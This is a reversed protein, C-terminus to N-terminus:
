KIKRISDLGRVKGGENLYIEHTHLSIALTSDAGMNFFSYMYLICKIDGQVQTTVILYTHPAISSEQVIGDVKSTIVLQYM